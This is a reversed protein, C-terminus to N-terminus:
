RTNANPNITTSTSTTKRRTKRVSANSITTSEEKEWLLIMDLESRLCPHDWISIGESKNSYYTQTTGDKLTGVHKEWNPPLAHNEEM